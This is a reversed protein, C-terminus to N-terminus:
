LAFLFYPLSCVIATKFDARHQTNCQVKNNLVHKGTGLARVKDTHSISEGDHDDECLPGRSRSMRIVRRPSSLVARRLM